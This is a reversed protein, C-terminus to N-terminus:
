WDREQLATEPDIEIGRAQLIREVTVAISDRGFTEIESNTM